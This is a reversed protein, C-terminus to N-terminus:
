EAVGFAEAVTIIHRRGTKVLVNDTISSELDTAYLVLLEFDRVMTAGNYLSFHLKGASDLDRYFLSAAPAADFKENVRARYVRHVSLRAESAYVAFWSDEHLRENIQWNYVIPHPSVRIARIGVENIGLMLDAVCETRPHIQRVTCGIVRDTVYM